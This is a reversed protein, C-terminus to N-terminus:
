ESVFLKQSKDRINIKVSEYEKVLVCSGGCSAVYDSIPLTVNEKGCLIVDLYDEPSICQPVYGSCILYDASLYEEPIVANRKSEFLVLVSTNEFTCHALSYEENCNYRILGNEWAEVSAKSTEIIEGSDYVSELSKGAVPLLLKNFEVSMLVNLNESDESGEPDGFIFMDASKTNIQNLNDIITDSKYYGDAKGALLIKSDGNSVIVCVGNDVDLVRIQTLGDFYFYSVISCTIIVSSVGICVAKFITKGKFNVLAFILVAVCFIVGSKWFINDTSVTTIPIQCILEVVFILYKTLVGVIFSLFDSLFTIKYAIATLGGLFMCITAAYTVLLNTLVAFISIYGVFFVTIPFVGVSASISVAIMNLATKALKGFTNDSISSLFYKNFLPMLTIIGLTAFFSMLFGSDAAIFPNVACLLFASFGLSNLSDAKRHFFNGSLLLIMMIGSRCVSPTFGTLFMFFITFLVGIFSNLRKKLGLENLIGYLGMVWVSLHLGSVAFVPAIGAERFKENLEESLDTKDGLLMAIVTAGYQNPLKDFIRSKIEERLTYIKYSFSNENRQTVEVSFDEDNYAYGGLFIGKSQYYIQVERNESSIEYINAKLKIKDYPQADVPNPLSLRLKANVDKGEIKDLNLVYYYRSNKCTPEESIVGAIEAEQGIFTQSYKYDSNNVTIFMVGSFVLATSIYIPFLKNRLSKLTLSLIFLMIGVGVSIVSLKDSFFVCLM